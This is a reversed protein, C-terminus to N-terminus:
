PARGSNETGFYCTSHLQEAWDEGKNAKHAKHQQTGGGGHAHGDPSCPHWCDTCCPSALDAALSVLTQLTVRTSQKPNPLRSCGRNCEHALAGAGREGAGAHVRESVANNRGGGRPGTPHRTCSALWLRGFPWLAAQCDHTPRCHGEGRRGYSRLRPTARCSRGTDLRGTGKGRGWECISASTFLTAYLTLTTLPAHHALWAPQGGRDGYTSSATTQPKGGVGWAPRQLAARVGGARM